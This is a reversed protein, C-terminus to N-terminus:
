VCETQTLAPEQGDLQTVSLTELYSIITRQSHGVMVEECMGAACRGFLNVRINVMKLRPPDMVLCSPIIPVGDHHLMDEEKELKDLVRIGGCLFSWIYLLCQEPIQEISSMWPSKVHQSAISLNSFLSLKTLHLVPFVVRPTNPSLRTAGAFTTRKEKNGLTTWHNRGRMDLFLTANESMSDLASELQMQQEEWKTFGVACLDFLVLYCM